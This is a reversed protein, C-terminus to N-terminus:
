LTRNVRGVYRMSQFHFVISSPFSFRLLDTTILVSFFRQCLLFVYGIVPIAWQTWGDTLLYVDLLKVVAAKATVAHRGHLTDM